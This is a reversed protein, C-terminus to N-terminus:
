VAAALDVERRAANVFPLGRRYLTIMEPGRDGDRTKRPVLYYATPNDADRVMVLVTDAAFRVKAGGAMDLLTPVARDRAAKTMDQIVMSVGGVSITAGLYAWSAQYCPGAALYFEQITIDTNEITMSTRLYGPVARFSWTESVPRQILGGVSWAGVFAPVGNERATELMATYTGHFGAKVGLGVSAFILVSIMM